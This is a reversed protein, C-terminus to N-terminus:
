ILYNGVHHEAVSRLSTYPSILVVGKPNYKAAIHCAPGTGMSRGVVVIDERSIRRKMLMYDFVAEADETIM